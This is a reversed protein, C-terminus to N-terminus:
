PLELGCYAIWAEIITNEECMIPKAPEPEFLSNKNVGSVNAPHTDETNENTM